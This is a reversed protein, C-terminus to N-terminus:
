QKVVLANGIALAELDTALFDRIANDPTNVIPEAEVNFSTNVVIPIGTRQEFAHILKWYRPNTQRSVAQPRATGDIHVIAPVSRRKEEKVSAAVIMFPSAHSSNFYEHFREELVSPALPRWMERSKITNLRVLTERSTPNGLLSRAGLARPGIEARGQFWGVLKHAELLAAVETALTDEDLVQYQLGHRDLAANIDEQSWDPGWYAHEMRFEPQRGHLMWDLELAAGLAVGSDHAAPQVFIDKFLGSNAIIGNASCNLAVGGALCLYECETLEKLRTCMGLLTDELSKQVSAAFNAYAMPEAKLGSTYPFCHESFYNLMQKARFPPMDANRMPPVDSLGEFVPANNQFALPVKQIPRGYAALGMFKGVEKLKGVVGTFQAATRYYLGLSVPVGFNELIHIEGDKGMALTTSNDEGQNDVILIAAREFGSVRFTSAAHSLHHRIAKIPPLKEYNFVAKPFLRHPDDHAPFRKLEEETVGKWKNKIQYDTGFAIAEVEDLTIGARDLCYGIADVPPEQPARKNRSFREQEGMAVLAGNKLLAAATDHGGIGVGLIYKDNTM